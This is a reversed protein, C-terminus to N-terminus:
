HETELCRWGRGVKELEQMEVDGSCGQGSCRVEGEPGELTKERTNIRATSVQAGKGGEDEDCSGGV